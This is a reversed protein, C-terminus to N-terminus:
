MYSAIAIRYMSLVTYPVPYGSDMIRGYHDWIAGWARTLM